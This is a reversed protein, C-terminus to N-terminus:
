NKVREGNYDGNTDDTSPDTNDCYCACKCGGAFESINGLGPFLEIIM